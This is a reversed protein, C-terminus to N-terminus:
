QYKKFKVRESKLNSMVPRYTVHSGEIKTNRQNRESIINATKDDVFFGKGKEM